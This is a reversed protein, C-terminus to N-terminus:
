VEEVETCIITLEVNLEKGDCLAEYIPSRLPGKEWFTDVHMMASPYNDVILLVQEYNIKRATFSSPLGIPRLIAKKTIRSM